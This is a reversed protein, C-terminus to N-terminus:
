KHLVLRFSLGSHSRSFFNSGAKRNTCRCDFADCSWDGGRIVNLGDSNPGSPNKSDSILYFTEDYIDSCLEKVNGSMDYLGLENPKKMAVPNLRPVKTRNDNWRTNKDYWAVDDINNSGAYIYGKSQNGGRAAFEWEAETPLCYKKGTLENLTMLFIRIDNWSIQVIPLNNLDRKTMDVQEGLSALEIMLWFSATVQTKGIYYDDLTVRHVPKEDEYGDNSGMMFTGREVAVMEFSVGNVTETFSAIKRKLETGCDPCYVAEPSLGTCNCEKNPCTKGKNEVKHGCEPCFKATALIESSCNTCQM